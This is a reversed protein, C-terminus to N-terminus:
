SVYGCIANRWKMYILLLYPLTFFSTPIIRHVIHPIYFFSSSLWNSTRFSRFRTPSHERNQISKWQFEMRFLRAFTWQVIKISCYYSDFINWRPDRSAKNMYSYIKYRSVVIRTLLFSFEFLRRKDILNILPINIEKLFMKNNCPTRNSVVAM